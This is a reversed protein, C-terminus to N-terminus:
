TKLNKSSFVTMLPDNLVDQLDGDEDELGTISTPSSESNKNKNESTSVSSYPSPHEHAKFKSKSKYPTPIPADTQSVHHTNGKNPASVGYQDVNHEESVPHSHPHPESQRNEAKGPQPLAASRAHQHGVYEAHGKMSVQPQAVASELVISPPKEDPVTHSARTSETLTQQTTEEKHPHILGDLGQRQSGNPASANVNPIGATTQDLTDGDYNGEINVPITDKDKAHLIRITKQAFVKGRLANLDFALKRYFPFGYERQDVVVSSHKHGCFMHEIGDSGENVDQSVDNVFALLEFKQGSGEKSRPLYLNHPIGCFTNLSNTGDLKGGQNNNQHLFSLLMEHMRNITIGNHKMTSASELSERKINETEEGSLTHVFRDMEMMEKPNYQGANSLGLFIRVIVKKTIRQPNNVEIHFSFDHHNLRQYTIYSRVAAQITVDELFTVLKDKGFKSSMTHVSVVALNDSLSAEDQTLGSPLVATDLMTEIFDSIQRHWRFFEPDMASVESFTMPGGCHNAIDLHGAEHYGSPNVKNLFERLSSGPNSRLNQARKETDTVNNLPIRCHAQRDRLDSFAFYGMKYALGLPKKFNEFNLPVLEPLGILRREIVARTVWQDHTYYFQENRRDAPYTDEYVKHLTSHFVHLLPDERYYDWKAEDPDQTHAINPDVTYNREDDLHIPGGDIYDNSGKPRRKNSPFFQGSNTELPSILTRLTFNARFEVSVAAWELLVHNIKPHEKLFILVAMYPAVRTIEKLILDALAHSAKKFERRVTQPHVNKKFRLWPSNPARIKKDWKDWTSYSAKYQHLPVNCKVVGEDKKSIHDIKIKNKKQWDIISKPKCITFTGRHWFKPKVIPEPRLIAAIIVSSSIKTCMEGCDNEWSYDGAQKKVDGLLVEMIKNMLEAEQNVEADQQSYDEGYEEIGHKRTDNFAVEKEDLDIVYQAYEGNDMEVDIIRRESFALLLSTFFPLLTTTMIGM